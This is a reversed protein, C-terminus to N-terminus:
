YIYPFFLLAISLLLLSIVGIPSPTKCGQELCIKRNHWYKWGSWLLLAITASFFLPRLPELMMFFSVSGFGLLAFVFPGVCCASALSGTLVAALLSVKPHSPMDSM